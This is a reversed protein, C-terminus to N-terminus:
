WHAASTPPAPPPPIHRVGPNGPRAHLAPPATRQRAPGPLQHPLATAPVSEPRPNRDHEAAIRWTRALWTSTLISGVGLAFVLIAALVAIVVSPGKTETASSAPGLQKVVLREKQPVAQAGAVSTLHSQLVKIANNALAGAQEATPAQTTVIIVPIMGTTVEPVTVSLLFARPGKPPTPVGPTKVANSQSSDGGPTVLQKPTLGVSKAIEDKIPSVTMLSSLLTARSTLTGVDGAGGLDVVQSSPSDVLASASGVGVQYPRSQFSPLHYMVMVGCAIAVVAAIATPIKHRLLERLVSVVPM